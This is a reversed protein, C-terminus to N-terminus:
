ESVEKKLQIMYETIILESYRGVLRLRNLAEVARSAPIRKLRVLDVVLRPSTTYPIAMYRCARIAKGDDTLLADAKLKAALSIAAAEGRGVPFPLRVPQPTDVRKIGGKECLGALVVSDPYKDLAEQSCCESFVVDEIYVKFALCIENILNAKTLLILSSSDGVILKKM